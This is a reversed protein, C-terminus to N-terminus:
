LVGVERVFLYSALIGSHPNTWGGADGAQVREAIQKLYDGDEFVLMGAYGNISQQRVTRDSGTTGTLGGRTENANLNELTSGDPRHMDQYSRALRVMRDPTVVGDYAGTMRAWVHWDAVYATYTAWLALENDGTKWAARPLTIGPGRSTECERYATVPLRAAHEQAWDLAGQPNPLDFAGALGLAGLYRHAVGNNLYTHSGDRFMLPYTGPAARRSYGRSHTWQEGKYNEVWPDTTTDLSWARAFAQVIAVAREADAVFRRGSPGVLDRNQWLAWAAEALVSFLITVNQKHLDTGDFEYSGGGGRYLKKPYPSWPQPGTYLNSWGSHETSYGDWEIVTTEDFARIGRAIVELLALDGTLRFARLIAGQATSGERAVNYLDPHRMRNAYDVNEWADPRLAWARTAQYARLANGEIPRGDKLTPNAPDFGPRGRLGIRDFGDDFGTIIVPEPDPEPDAPPVVVDTADFPYTWQRVYDVLIIAETGPAPRTGDLATECQLVWHFPTSPVSETTEAALAGDLVYRIRDPTWEIAVTHWEYPSAGTDHALQNVSPNGAQHNFAHITTGPTLDCEPFNIEGENWDDSDPWLLWAIKFGPAPAEVKFRVEYRGYTQGEAWTDHGPIIPLVAAVYTRDSTARMRIRMLGDSASILDPAYTGNRSTDPWPSPYFGFSPYANFFEGEPANTLFHEDIILGTPEPEPQPTPTPAQAAWAELATIRDALAALATTHDPADAGAPGTPGPPGAPGIVLEMEDELAAGAWRLVERYTERADPM